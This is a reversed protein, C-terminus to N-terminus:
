GLSRRRGFILHSYGSNGEFALAFVSRYELQRYDTNLSDITALVETSRNPNIIKVNKASLTPQPFLKVSIPGSFEIKKGTIESFKDAIDQRHTNWDVMSIYAFLGGVAAIVIGLFILIIKKVM